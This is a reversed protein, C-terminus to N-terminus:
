LISPHYRVVPLTLQRGRRTTVRRVRAPAVRTRRRRRRTTTRRPYYTQGRYGPTPIISPHLVYNPLLSSARGYTRRSRRRAPLVPAEVWPDTQMGTKTQMVAPVASIGAVPPETMMGTETQMAEVAQAASSVPIQIDVTQVGMGPAVQKIPRIKIDPQVDPEVKLMDLVDELKQKKPVLLQMTPQLEGGERKIGRKTPASVPLVQQLTVPKLSPTPNSTDLPIAIEGTRAKKGYAFEGSRDLAQELIDEDGYVEDYSRKFGKWSSKEGPNFSIVTGPRLIRQVKRGKWNLRRRPAFTRVFEVDGDGEGLALVEDEEKKELKEQKKVRKLRRTPKVDPAPAYIEPVLAQLLEEKFKRKTM